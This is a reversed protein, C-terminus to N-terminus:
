PQAAIELFYHNSTARPFLGHLRELRDYPVDDSDYGYFLVQPLTSATFASYGFMGTANWCHGAVYPGSLNTGPPCGVFWLLCWAVNVVLTTVISLYLFRRRWKSRTIIRLILIAVSIRGTALAMYSLPLAIHMSRTVAPYRHDLILFYLHRGGGRLALLTAAVNVALFLM